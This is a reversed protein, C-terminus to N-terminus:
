LVDAFGKKIKIFFVFGMFSVVLASLLSAAWGWMDPLVGFIMIKRMQEISSTLPNLYVFHQFEQPLATIPFFVPASFPIIALVISVFQGIDRLYVGLASVIWAIGITLMALPALVFPLLFITLPIKGFIFIAFVCWAAISILAHFMASGATVLVLIEVPFVVKKVYNSNVVVLSPARNVCESFFNLAILGSFLILAFEGKTEDVGGWRAKFVFGFFVTYVVLMMVPNVLSWFLGMTSGRYRGAIDRRTLEKVLYWNRFLLSAYNELLTYM